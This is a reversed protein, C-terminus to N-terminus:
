TEFVKELLAALKRPDHERFLDDPLSARREEYRRMLHFLSTDDPGLCHALVSVPTSRFEGDYLLGNNDLVWAKEAIGLLDDPHHSIVAMGISRRGALAQLTARVQRRSHNDLGAFPEDLIIFAADTALVCAIAVLRQEGGSLERLRRQAYGGNLGVSEMLTIIAENTVNGKMYSRLQMEVTPRVFLDEARQLALVARSKKPFRIVRGKNPKLLGCLVRALTTKGSGNSGLIGVRDGTKLCLNVDHLISRDHGTSSRASVSVAELRIESTM